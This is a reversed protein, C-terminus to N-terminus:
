DQKCLMDGAELIRDIARDVKGGVFIKIVKLLRQVVPWYLKITEVAQEITEIKNNSDAESITTAIENLDRKLTQDM